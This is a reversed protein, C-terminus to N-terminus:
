TMKKRLHSRLIPVVHPQKYKEAAQLARDVYQRGEYRRNIGKLFLSCFEASGHRASWYLCFGCQHINLGKRVNSDELLLKVVEMKAEEMAVMLPQNEGAAANVRPDALLMSVIETQGESAAYFMGSNDDDAPNVKPHALLKRVVEKYGLACSVVLPANMQVAINFSQMELLADYIRMALTPSVRWREWDDLAFGKPKRIPQGDEDVPQPQPQPGDQEGDTDWESDEDAPDVAIDGNHNQTQQQQQQTEHDPDNPDLPEAELIAAVLVVKYNFPVDEIWSTGHIGQKNLLHWITRPKLTTMLSKLHYRPFGTDHLILSTFISKSATAIKSVDGLPLNAAILRIVEPPLTNM